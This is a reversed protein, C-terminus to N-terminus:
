INGHWDGSSEDAKDAHHINLAYYGTIYKEAVKETEM